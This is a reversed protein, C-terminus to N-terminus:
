ATNSRELLGVVQFWEPQGATNTFEQMGLKRMVGRSAANDFETTAIVRAVAFSEFLFRAVTRAAETAYGRGQERPDTAWYLGVEPTHGTGPVSPYHPLTGFPALAPVVGVVGVLREDQRRVVAREGYPPQLLRAYERYGAITWNLWLEREARQAERQDTAVDWAECLVRHVDDLDSSVFPRIELRDSRLPPMLTSM